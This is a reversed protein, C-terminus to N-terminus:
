FKVAVTAAAATSIVAAIAKRLMPLSQIRSSQIRSLPLPPLSCRYRSCRRYAVAARTATNAGATICRATALIYHVAGRRSCCRRLSSSRHYRLPLRCYRDATFIIFPLPSLLLLLSSLPLPPSSTPITASDTDAARPRSHRPHFKPAILILM